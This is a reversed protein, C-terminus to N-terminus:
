LASNNKRKCNQLATSNGYGFTAFRVYNNIPRPIPKAFVMPLILTKINLSKVDIYKEANKIIHPSLAIYKFDNSNNWLIMAKTQFYKVILLQWYKKIYNFEIFKNKIFIFIKFPIDKLKICRIRYFIAKKIILPPAFQNNENSINEFDGHLVLIFKLKIFKKHSKIKKILYLLTPSFSLFLINDIKNQILFSFIKKFLLYYNIMGILSLSDSIRIPFYEINEIIINDYKLINKIATIHTKHAYFLIKDNPFALRVGYIFGSNVKEHTIEKCQPEFIVIM